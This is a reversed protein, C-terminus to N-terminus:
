KSIVALWGTAYSDLNNFTYESVGASTVKYHVQSSPPTDATNIWTETGSVVAKKYLTSNGPMMTGDMALNVNSGQEEIIVKLNINGSLDGSTGKASVHHVKIGAPAIVKAMNGTWTFSIGSFDTGNVTANIYGSIGNTFTITTDKSASAAVIPALDVNNGDEISLVTGALNLNQNDFNDDLISKTGGADTIEINDGNVVFSNILENASDADPDAVDVTASGGDELALTYLTGTNSGTLQQNDSGQLPTLDVVANNASQTAGITLNVGDFSATIDQIENQNDADADNIDIAVTGGNELVLTYVSGTKSSTLTQNKLSALSIVQSNGDEMQLTLEFTTENFSATLNQNDTNVGSIDVNVTNGNSLGISVNTGDFTASVDQLENTADADGDNVDVVVDAGGDELSLTYVTGTKSSTLQQDDSSALASLDLVTSNGDEIAITLAATGADFTATLNQNDTGTLTSVDINITNGNTLTLTINQGDFSGAIDQIENTADFDGDRVSVTGGNQSLTVNDGNQTMVQPVAAEAVMKDIIMMNHNFTAAKLKEPLNTTWLVLYLNDTPDFILSTGNNPAAGNTNLVDVEIDLTPYRSNIAVIEYRDGKSDWIEQGIAVSDPTYANPYSTYDNLFTNQFRYEGVTGAVPFDLEIIGNMQELTLNYPDDQASLALSFVMLLALTFLNKIKNM